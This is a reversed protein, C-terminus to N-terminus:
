KHTLYISNKNRTQIYKEFLQDLHEFDQDFQNAKIKITPLKNPDLVLRDVLSYFLTSIDDANKQAAVTMKKEKVWTELTNKAMIALKKNQQILKNRDADRSDKDQLLYNINSRMIALQYRATLVDDYRASLVDVQTFNHQMKYIFFSSLASSLIFILLLLSSGLKVTRKISM